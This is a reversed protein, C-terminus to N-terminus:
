DDLVKLSDLVASIADDREMAVGEDGIDAVNIKVTLSEEIEDDDDDYIPAIFVAEKGGDEFVSTFMIVDRFGNWEGQNVEDGTDAVMESFDDVTPFAEGDRMEALHLSIGTEGWGPDKGALIVLLEDDAEDNMTIEFLDEDYEFTMDRDRDTYTAAFAGGPLALLAILLVALLKKM